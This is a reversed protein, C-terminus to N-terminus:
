PSLARLDEGAPIGPGAIVDVGDVAVVREVVIPHDAHVTASVPGAGGSENPSAVEPLALEVRREPGVEIDQLGEPETSTGDHHLTLAVTTSQEPDPNIVVYRSRVAVGEDPGAEASPAAQEGRGVPFTWTTAAVASGRAASMARREQDSSALVREVVVPVGNTSTVVTTHGVGPTIRSEDAYDLVVSRRPRLVLGFPEPTRVDPDDPLVAVDVDATEDTPNYAVLAETTNGDIGGHPFTWTEAPVPQGLTSTVGAVDISGDFIQVRGVVLRGDRARVSAAVQSRRTVDEGVEVAMVHQAPVTLGQWRVPERVEGPTSFVADVKVDGPFPNFLVLLERADRTTAGWAFHWAPAARSACPGLARGQPGVIEQEVAVGGGDLEVVAALPLMEGDGAVLSHESARLLDILDVSAQGRAPVTVTQSAPADDAAPDGTVATVRAEISGETPNAIVVTHVVDRSGSEQPESAVDEEAKAALASACYWTSSRAESAAQVPLAPIGSAARVAGSDDSTDDGAGAVDLRGSEVLGALSALGALLVLAPWRPSM